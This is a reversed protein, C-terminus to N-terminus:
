MLESRILMHYLHEIRVVDKKVSQKQFLKSGSIVRLTIIICFVIGTSFLFGKVCSKIESQFWGPLYLKQCDFKM